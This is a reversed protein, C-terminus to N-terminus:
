GRPLRPEVLAAAPEAVPCPASAGGLATVSVTVSSKPTIAIDIDCTEAKEVLRGQHGGITRDEVRTAGGTGLDALGNKADVYIGITLNPAGWLCAPRGAVTDQDPSAGALGLQAVEASTLLSCPAIGALDPGATTTTTKATSPSSSTTSGGSATPTGDSVKTCAQALLLVGVAAAIRLPLRM